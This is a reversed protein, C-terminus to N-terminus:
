EAVILGNQEAFKYQKDRLTKIGTEIKTDAAKAKINVKTKVDEKYPYSNQKYIEIIATFENNFIDLYNQFLEAAANRYDDSDRFNGLDKVTEISQKIKQNSEEKIRELERPNENEIAALFRYVCETASIEEVSILNNYEYANRATNSCSPLYIASLVIFSSIIFQRLISQEMTLTKYINEKNLIWM